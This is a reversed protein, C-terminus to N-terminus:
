LGYSAKLSRGDMMMIYSVISRLYLRVAQVSDDNSPIPIAIDDPCNNSDVLAIVPIGMRKAERIAIRHKEVGVIFLAGPMRRMRIRNSGQNADEADSSITELNGSRPPTGNVADFNTLTGGLWRRSVFPMEIRELEESIVEKFRQDTCVFLIKEGRLILHGIYELATKFMKVTKDLDMIHFKNRRCYIFDKMKPNWASSKHGLHAGARLLAEITIKELKINDHNM